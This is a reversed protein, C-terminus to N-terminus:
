EIIDMKELHRLTRRKFAAKDLPAMLMDSIGHKLAERMQSLNGEQCIAVVHEMHIWSEKKLEEWFEATNEEKESVDAYVMVVKDRNEGSIKAIDAGEMCELVRLEAPVLAQISSCINRNHSILLAAPRMDENVNKPEIGYERYCAKGDQKAQYLAEDARRFLEAYNAKEKNNSALGISLSINEPIALGPKYKMIKVLENAKQHVIQMSPVDVMMVAFEDGGIRGVIDTRQFTSSILDAVIKICRDGALHGSIDNISKFNDIDIIMMIHLQNTASKLIENMMVETTTKNYLGTMLDLESKARLKQAELEISLMRRRSAMVNAVRSLVIEPVFPKNIFDSAGLEFAKIQNEMAGSGTIVVVPIERLFSEKRHIELFEFGTMKPMMLDLIIIDVNGQCRELIELTEEGDRAELILYEKHFLYKLIERNMKTDDAILMTSEISGASKELMKEFTEDIRLMADAGKSMQSRMKAEKMIIINDMRKQIVIPDYPKSVVDDAGLSLATRETKEKTSTAVLIGMNDYTHDEKLVKLVELGDMEPMIIDLLLADVKKSRIIEIAERGNKAQLIEYSNKLFNQIIKRNMEDDDAILLVKKNIM